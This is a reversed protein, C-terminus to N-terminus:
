IKTNGPKNTIEREYRVQKLYKFSKSSGIHADNKGYAWALFAVDDQLEERKAKLTNLSPLYRLNFGM